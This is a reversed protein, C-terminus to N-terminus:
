GENGKISSLPDTHCMLGGSIGEFFFGGAIGRQRKFVSM